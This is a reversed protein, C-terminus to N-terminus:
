SPNTTGTAYKEKLWKEAQSKTTLKKEFQEHRIEELIKGVQPGKEINLISMVEDGTLLRKPEKPTHKRTEQFDKKIKKYLTYDAPVTGAIDAKFLALLDKFEPKVYWHCKRGLTMELLPVMMMHHLVLWEVRKQEEKSFRLRRFIKAVIERSREVHHDFRIREKLRFTDPKGSDHLLTAWRLALPATKPLSALARLSHEFVDGETHYEAPQAVGKMNEVEPLIIKLVGVDHMDRIAQVPNESLLMKNLEDKIREQALKEVHTAHRALAQYTKPHYQFNFANKIRIARLIRLHDEKIRTDPNGIFRILKAKLDKQGGVYDIIKKSIPEFFMGNITFDRRLADEKANTFFVADPRRGDSYGSDSRFTAVEFQHDGELVIIVGFKRGVEITRPMLALIEDPKASTAIDIDKPNLGLFLDRVSGGAFYATHGAARLMEVIKRATKQM